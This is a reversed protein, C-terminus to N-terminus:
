RKLTRIRKAAKKSPHNKEKEDLHEESFYNKGM